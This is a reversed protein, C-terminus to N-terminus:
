LCVSVYVCMCVCVYNHVHVSDCVPVYVDLGKGGEGVVCLSM